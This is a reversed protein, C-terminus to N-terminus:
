LIAMLFAFFEMRFCRWSDLRPFTHLNLSNQSETSGFFAKTYVLFDLLQILAISQYTGVLYISYLSISWTIFTNLVLMRIRELSQKEKLFLHFCIIWYRFSIVLNIKLNKVFLPNLTPDEGLVDDGHMASKMSISPLTVTDSRLDIKVKM